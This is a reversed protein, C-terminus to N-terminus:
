LISYTPKASINTIAFTICAKAQVATSHLFDTIEGQICFDANPNQTHSVQAQPEQLMPKVQFFLMLFLGGGWCQEEKM